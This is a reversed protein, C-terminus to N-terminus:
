LWDDLKFIPLQYQRFSGSAASKILM